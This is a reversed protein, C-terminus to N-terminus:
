KDLKNEISTILNEIENVSIVQTFFCGYREEPADKM